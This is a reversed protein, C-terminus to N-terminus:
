EDKIKDLQDMGHFNMTKSLKSMAQMDLNGYISIFGSQDPQDILLLMEQFNEGEKRIMFKVLQDSEKVQMLESFGELDFDQIEKRFNEFDKKSVKCKDELMLIRIFKLGEMADKMDSMEHNNTDEMQSIMSFLEKTIHVTTFGEKGNYKEFLKTTPSDQAVLFSPLLFLVAVFHLMMRKKM